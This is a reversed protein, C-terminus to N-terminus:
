RGCSTTELPSNAPLRGLEKHPLGIVGRFFCALARPPVAPTHSGADLSLDESIVDPLDLPCCPSTVVQWSEELSALFRLLPSAATVPSHTRLLSSPPTVDESSVSAADGGHPDCGCPAFPSQASPPSVMLVATPCLFSWFGYAVLHTSAPSLGLSSPACTCWCKFKMKSPFTGPLCALAEFRVM